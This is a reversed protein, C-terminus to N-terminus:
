ARIIWYHHEDKIKSEIRLRKNPPKNADILEKIDYLVPEAEAYYGHGLITLDINTVEVTDIGNIITLPPTFGARDSDQLWSSMGLARDKASVYMTTRESIQPYAIALQKFLDVDLDPAALIIQGFRVGSINTADSTIRAIARAFGRNGMSHAIIHIRNANARTAVSVLFEAIQKESAEVRAIDATYDKLSAKSPWSYFATVGPVKLDFGIQASRLAAEEFSTNYGHIYVLVSRDLEELSMLQESLEILFNDESIFPTIRKLKLHDDTFEFHIWRKWFPTGISGFKHTIPVEVKCIGYHVVGDADRENNFGKSPDDFQVLSRNTGFWVDYLHSEDPKESPKAKKFEDMKKVRRFTKEAYEQKLILEDTSKYPPPPIPDFWVPPFSNFGFIQKDISKSPPQLKLIDNWIKNLGTKYDRNFDILTIKKGKIQKSIKMNLQSSIKDGLLKTIKQLLTEGYAKADRATPTNTIALLLFSHLTFYAASILGLFEDENSIVYNRQGWVKFLINYYEKIPRKASASSAFNAIYNTINIGIHIFDILFKELKKNRRGNLQLLIDSIKKQGALNNLELNISDLIRKLQM